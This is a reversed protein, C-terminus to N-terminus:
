KLSPLIDFEMERITHALFNEARVYAFKEALEKPSSM